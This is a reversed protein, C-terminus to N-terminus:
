KVVGDNAEVFQTFLDDWDWRAPPESPDITMAVVDDAVGDIWEMVLDHAKGERLIGSRWEYIVERQRNMVEDYKLVNKRIEFNQAEVQSQAREIAKTVMKAEIPVDEPM